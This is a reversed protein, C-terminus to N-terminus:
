QNHSMAKHLLTIDDKRSSNERDKEEDEGNKNTKKTVNCVPKAFSTIIVALCRLKVIVPMLMSWCLYTISNKQLLSLTALVQLTPM